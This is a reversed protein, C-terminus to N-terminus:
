VMTVALKGDLRGASDAVSSYATLAALMVATMEVRAGASNSVMLVVLLDVL